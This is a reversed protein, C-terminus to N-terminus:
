GPLREGRVVGCDLRGRQALQKGVVRVAAALQRQGDAVQVDVVALVPHGPFGKCQQEIQGTRGAQLLPALEVSQCSTAAALLM